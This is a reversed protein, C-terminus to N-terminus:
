LLALIRRASESIGGALCYFVQLGKQERELIDASFLVSLHRSTSKLSLKIEESIDGVTAAKKHKLLRLIALRRNNALAKMNREIEKDKM